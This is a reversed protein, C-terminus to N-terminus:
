QSECVVFGSCRTSILQEGVLHPADLRLENCGERVVGCAIGM